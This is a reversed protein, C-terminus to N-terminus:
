AADLIKISQWHRSKGVYGKRILREVVAWATSQPIGMRRGLEASTLPYGDKEISDKLLTLAKSEKEDMNRKRRTMVDTIVLM